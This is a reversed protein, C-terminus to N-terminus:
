KTKPAPTTTAPAAPTIKDDKAEIVKAGKADLYYNGKAGQYVTNGKADKGLVKDTPKAPATTTKAAPTTTKAAPTTQASVAFVSSVLVATGIVKMLNKM